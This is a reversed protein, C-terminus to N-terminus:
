GSFGFHQISWSNDKRVDDDGLAGEGSFVDGSKDTAPDYIRGTNIQIQNRHAIPSHWRGLNPKHKTWQAGFEERALVIIAPVNPGILSHSSFEFAIHQHAKAFTAVKILRSPELRHDLRPFLVSGSKVSEKRAKKHARM